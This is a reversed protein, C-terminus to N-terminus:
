HASLLVEVPEAGAPPDARATFRRLLETMTADLARLEEPTIRVVFQSEGTVARWAAPLLPRAARAAQLRADRRARVARDLAGAAMAADPAEHQDTFALGDHTRRWPRERGGGGEVREVFGYKALQRLHFSCSSPSEGVREAAQTATLVAAETLADLLALRVPHALARMALPDTLDRIRPVESM